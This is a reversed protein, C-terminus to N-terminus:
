KMFPALADLAKKIEAYAAAQVSVNQPPNKNEQLYDNAEDARDEFEQLAALVSAGLKLKLGGRVSVGLTNRIQTGSFGDVHNRNEPDLTKFKAVCPAYHKFLHAMPEAFTKTHGLKGKYSPIDKQIEDAADKRNKTQEAATKGKFKDIKAKKLEALYTEFLDIMPEMAAAIKVHDDPDKDVLKNFEDIKAGMSFKCIKDPVGFKKKFAQWEAREGFHHNKPM